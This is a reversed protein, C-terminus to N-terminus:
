LCSYINKVEESSVCGLEKRTAPWSFLGGVAPNCYCVGIKLSFSKATMKLWIACFIEPLLVRRFLALRFIVLPTSFSIGEEEQRGQLVRRHGSGPAHIREAAAHLRLVIHTHAGLLERIFWVYFRAPAATWRSCCKSGHDCPAKM